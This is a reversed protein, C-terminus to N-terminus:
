PSHVLQRNEDFWARTERIDEVMQVRLAELSEFKEEDRLKQHFTVTLMENYIDGCFQDLHVELLTETGDVTPRTGLSAVAEYDRDLGSVTAVFIGGLASRKRGISINATPVGLQRGLKKGHIVRGSMFYPRGLLKEALKLDGRQLCERIWTSSVREHDFRLTGMHSVGFGFKDGADKLMGYDGEANQGFRFDDGVVLYRVGLQEVLFSEVVVDARINRTRDNFGICLVRDIGTSRLTDVKERFRTLRPPAEATAFYERPHPEFTILLSPAGLEESKAGLHALIMQHGHHIGDFTGITIVSGKHRARINHLGRIVEM